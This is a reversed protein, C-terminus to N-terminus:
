TAGYSNTAQFRYTYTHGPNLSRLTIPIVFNVSQADITCCGLVIAPAGNDSLIVYIQTSAGNATFSGYINANTSGITDASLTTASPTGAAQAKFTALSLWVVLSAFVILVNKPNNYIVTKM